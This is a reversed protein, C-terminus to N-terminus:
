ASVGRGRLRRLIAAFTRPTPVAQDEDDQDAIVPPAIAACREAHTTERPAPILPGYTGYVLSLVMPTHGDCQMLPETASTGNPLITQGWTGNWHWRSGYVDIWTRTLDFPVGDLVWDQPTATM